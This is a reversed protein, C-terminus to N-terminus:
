SFANLFSSMIQCTAQPQEFGYYHGCHEIIKMYSNPIATNLDESMEKPTRKDADGVIILTPCEISGIKPGIAPANQNAKVMEAYSSPDNRLLTQRMREVREPKNQVIWPSHAAKTFEFTKEVVEEIPAGSDSLRQRESFGSRDTSALRPSSAGILIAHSVMEPHRLVFNLIVAGGLSWGALPVKRLGFHNMFKYLDSVWLDYSLPAELPRVTKGFGRMDYAYVKFEKALIPIMEDFSQADAGGGHILVLPSGEGSMEYNVNLDDIQAFM